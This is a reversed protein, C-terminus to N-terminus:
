LTLHGSYCLSWLYGKFLCLSIPLFLNALRRSYVSRFHVYTMLLHFALGSEVQYWLLCLSEGRDHRSFVSLCSKPGLINVDLQECIILYNQCILVWGRADPKYGVQWKFCGGASSFWTRSASWNWSPIHFSIPMKRHEKIATHIAVVVESLVTPYNQTFNLIIYCKM